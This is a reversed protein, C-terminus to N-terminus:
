PTGGIPQNVLYLQLMKMWRMKDDETLQIPRRAPMRTTGRQHWIGYPVRTGVLMQTKSIEEVSYPNNGTLSELLLGSLQLIAKGPFNKAKWAAYDPSLQAWPSGSRSGESSFQEAEMRRFDAAIEKFVPSMDSAREGFRTLVRDLQRVGDVEFTFRLEAM